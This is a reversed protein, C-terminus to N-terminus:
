VAAEEGMFVLQIVGINVAEILYEHADWGGEWQDPDLTAALVDLAAILEDYSFQRGNKIYTAEADM